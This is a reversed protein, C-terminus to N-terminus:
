PRFYDVQVRDSRFNYNCEVRWERRDRSALFVHARGVANRRDDTQMRSGVVRQIRFDRREVARICIAQTERESPQRRDAEERRPGEIRVLSAGGTALRYVCSGRAADRDRRLSLQMAYGSLREGSYLERAPGFDVVRYGQERAARECAGEIDQAQAAFPGSAALAALLVLRRVLHLPM